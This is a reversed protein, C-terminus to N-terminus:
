LKAAAQAVYAGMEDVDVVDTHLVPKNQLSSLQEPATTGTANELVQMCAFDDEPCALGLADGVARPFKYPNATSLLVRAKAAPAAATTELVHYGCATHPDILYGHENWCAAIAQAVQEESAWGGGFVSRIRGLLGNPLAYAGSAALNHMLRAVLECDGESLYYLMRELNSSILIDMSPSTTTFFPRNRDYTGTALFDILVNNRDSAVLLKAVPLGLRSAYYGALIDGFNGTPVCFEVEDGPQIAGDRLLQAYASFYYVVQPVLRGVNISNASSLVVGQKALRDALERDAFIRKVASQADDFNGRVGCVAVNAGQQTSMQLEQVRSVKGEPYFVTIGCGPADAFGDLAAKGTDGSTATVIMIKEAAPAPFAAATTDAAGAAATGDVTDDATAAAVSAVADQTDAANPGAAVDQPASAATAATTRAMLRPLMQLAVDKFASTPGHWLELVYTPIDATSGSAVARSGAAASAQPAAATAGNAEAAAGPAEETAGPEAKAATDDAEGAASAAQQPAAKGLRVLPTVEASAFTHGYAEEVCAAIEAPTYDPLLAGLVERALEPYDKAALGTLDIPEAGLEDTVFLGGDPAIGRRIAEKATLHATRSRTSHFLAM